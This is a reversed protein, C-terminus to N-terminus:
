KERYFRLKARVRAAVQSIAPMPDNIRFHTDAVGGSWRSLELMTEGREHASQSAYRLAEADILTKPREHQHVPGIPEGVADCYGAFPLNIGNLAALEEVQDIRGVTPEIMLYRGTQSDRKFEISCFGVVGHQSFFRDTASVLVDRAEPSAPTSAISAGTRPPWIILKRGVFSLADGGDCPRYQLCFFIADDDGPIYEQIVMTDHHPLIEQLLGTAQAADQLLYAKSFRSMYAPDNDSPKLICPFQLGELKSLDTEPTVVLTSPASIRSTAVLQLLEQKNEMAAIQAHDALCFRFHESLTERHESILLTPIRQTPLLFPRHGLDQALRILSLILEPKGIHMAEKRMALRTQMEPKAMSESVAVVPVGRSALSRVAGLGGNIMGVVVAPVRPKQAISM